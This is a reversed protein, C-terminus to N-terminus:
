EEREHRGAAERRQRDQEHAAAAADLALEDGEVYEGRSRQEGRQVVDLVVEEAMLVGREVLPAIQQREHAETRERDCPEHRRRRSAPSPRTAVSATLTATARWPVTLPLARTAPAFATTRTPRTAPPPVARMQTRLAPRRRM